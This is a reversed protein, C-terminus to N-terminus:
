TTTTQVTELASELWDEPVTMDADVFALIDSDTHRIGTNRAAYSSQIEREHLLTIHDHDTEYTRVIEPTRDTSNNDVVVIQYNTTTQGLLSDLTDQIGKPDNYVPIIVVVSTYTRSFM